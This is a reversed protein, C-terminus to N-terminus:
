VTVFAFCSPITDCKMGIWGYKQLNLDRCQCISVYVINLCRLTVLTILTM